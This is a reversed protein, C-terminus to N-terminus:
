ATMEPRRAASGESLSLCFRADPPSPWGM